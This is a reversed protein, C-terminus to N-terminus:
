IVNMMFVSRQGSDIESQWAAIQNTIELKKLSVQEPDKKEPQAELSKKWSLGAAVFRLLKRRRQLKSPLTLEVHERLEEQGL